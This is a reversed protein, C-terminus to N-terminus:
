ASKLVRVLAELAAVPSAARCEGSTETTTGQRFSASVRSDTNFSIWAAMSLFRKAASIMTASLPLM